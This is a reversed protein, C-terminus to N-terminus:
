TVEQSIINLWEENSMSDVKVIVQCDCEIKNNNLYKLINAKITDQYKESLYWETRNLNHSCGSEHEFLEILYAKLLVMDISSFNEKKGAM